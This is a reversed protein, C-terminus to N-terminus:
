ADKRIVESVLHPFSKEFEDECWLTFFEIEDITIKGRIPYDKTGDHIFVAPHELLLEKFLTKGCHVEGSSSIGLILNDNYAQVYRKRIDLVRQLHNM